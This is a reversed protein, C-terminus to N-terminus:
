DEEGDPNMMERIDDMESESAVDDNGNAYAFKEANEAAEQEQEWRERRQQEDLPSKNPM